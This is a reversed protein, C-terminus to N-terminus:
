RITGSVVIGCGVFFFSLYEAVPKGTCQMPLFDSHIEFLDVALETAHGASQLFTLQWWGYISSRLFLCVRFYACDPVTVLFGPATEAPISQFPYCKCKALSSPILTSPSTISINGLAVNRTRISCDVIGTMPTIEPLIRCYLM